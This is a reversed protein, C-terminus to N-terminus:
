TRGDLRDHCRKCLLLLNEETDLKRSGGMRKPNVHAIETGICGCRGDRVATYDQSTGERHVPGECMGGARRWVAMRVDQPVGRYRERKHTPKPFMV